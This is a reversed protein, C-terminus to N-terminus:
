GGGEVEESAIGSKATDDAKACQPAAEGGGGGRGRLFHDCGMTEGEGNGYGKIPAM